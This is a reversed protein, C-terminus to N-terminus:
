RADGDPDTDNALVGPCAPVTLVGDEAVTYADATPSRPTTSRRHRHDDRHDPRQSDTGDSATYTFRTPASSTRRRPHLHVLRRRDLTLPAAPQRRRGPGRDPHHADDPDTDNALVGTAAPVTLTADEAVTYADADAVPADNVPTTVTITM